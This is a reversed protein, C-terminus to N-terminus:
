PTLAQWLRAKELHSKGPLSSPDVFAVDADSSRQEFEYILATASFEPTLELIGISPPLRNLGGPLWDRATDLSVRADSQSFPTSSVIFVVIRYRGPNSTLLAQLYSALSFIPRPQIRVSWRSAGDKPTGDAAVQELRSVLAFGGPAAYYSREVYGAADFARELREAVDILRLEARGGSVMDRPLVASASATPPPWPFSPAEESSDFSYVDAGGQQEKWGAEIADRRDAAPPYAPDAETPRALDLASRAQELSAGLKRLVFGSFREAEIENERRLADPGRLAHQSLHHGIQHALAALATWRQPEQPKLTAFTFQDYIVYREDGAVAAAALPVNGGHVRFKLRREAASLMEDILRQTPQDSSFLYLPEGIRQSSYACFGSPELLEQAQVQPALVLAMGIALICETRDFSARRLVM